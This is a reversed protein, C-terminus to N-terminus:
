GSPMKEVIGAIAVAISPLTVPWHIPLLRGIASRSFPSKAAPAIAIITPKIHFQDKGILLLMQVLEYTTKQAPMAHRAMAVIMHATSRCPKLPHVFGKTM